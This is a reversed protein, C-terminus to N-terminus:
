QKFSELLGKKQLLALFEYDKRYWERLNNKAEIDLNKDINQPNKHANLDDQPLKANKPLKLIKKLRAWDRNLYKQNGIFIMDKNRSLFYKENEFWDWYSTKVNDISKMAKVAQNRINIDKSSLANALSNPTDFLEFAEKEANSWPNNYRPMGMRKRSYFSSVFRDIPERVFFFMKEGEPVDQMTFDHGHVIVYYNDSIHHNRLAFKVATGGTKCIHLFHVTQKKLIKSMFIKEPFNLVRRFAIYVARIFKYKKLKNKVTM